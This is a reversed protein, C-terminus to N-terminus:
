KLKLWFSLEIKKTFKLFKNEESDAYWFFLDFNNTKFEM